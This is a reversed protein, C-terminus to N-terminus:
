HQKIKDKHKKLQRVVKDVLLDITKYMDESESQAYIEAGPIHLKAEAIQRLKDVSLIVHTSTITNAHRNLKKFKSAIFDRLTPTVDLNHGTYQIQAM